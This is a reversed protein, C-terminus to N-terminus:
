EENGVALAAGRERRGAEGTHDLAVRGSSAELGLGLGVHQPVSVAVGWSQPVQGCRRTRRQCVSRPSPTSTRVIASGAAEGDGTCLNRARQAVAQRIRFLATNHNFRLVRFRWWVRGYFSFLREGYSIYIGPLHFLKRSKAGRWHHQKYSWTGDLMSPSADVPV